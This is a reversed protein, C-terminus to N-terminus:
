LLLDDGGGSTAQNANSAPMGFSGFSAGSGQTQPKATGWIGATAKEKQLDMMKPSAVKNATSASGLSMTWLDEFGGAPKTQAAPTPPFATQVTPTSPQPQLTNRQGFATPSTPSMVGSFGFNATNNAMAPISPQSLSASSTHTPMLPRSVNSTPTANLLDM